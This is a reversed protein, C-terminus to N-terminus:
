DFVRFMGCHLQGSAAGPLNAGANGPVCHPLRLLEPRDAAPHRDSDRAHVGHESPAPGFVVTIRPFKKACTSPQRRIRSRDESQAAHEKQVAKGRTAWVCRGTLSTCAEPRALKTGPRAAWLLTQVYSPASVWAVARFCRSSTAM